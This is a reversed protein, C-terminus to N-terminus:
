KLNYANKGVPRFPESVFGPMCLFCTDFNGDSDRVELLYYCKCIWCLCTKVAELM